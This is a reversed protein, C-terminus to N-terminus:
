DIAAIYNADCGSSLIIRSAAPNASRRLENNHTTALHTMRDRPSVPPDISSKCCANQKPQARPGLTVAENGM